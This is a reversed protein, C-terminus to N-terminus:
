PTKHRREVRRRATELRREEQQIKLEDIMASAAAKTMGASPKGGLSRIFALQRETAMNGDGSDIVEVRVSTKVPQRKGNIPTGCGPCFLFGKYYCGCHRCRVELLVACLFGVVPFLAFFYAVWRNRRKAIWFCGCVNAAFLLIPIVSDM